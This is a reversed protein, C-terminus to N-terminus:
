LRRYTSASCLRTCSERLLQDRAQCARRKRGRACGILLKKRCASVHKPARNYQERRAAAPIFNADTHVARISGLASYGSIIIIIIIIVIFATTDIV